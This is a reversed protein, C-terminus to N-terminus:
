RSDIDFCNACQLLIHNFYILNFWLSIYIIYMLDLALWFKHNFDNYYFFCFSFNEKTIRLYFRGWSPDELNKKLQGRRVLSPYVVSRYYKWRVPACICLQNNRMEAMWQPDIAVPIFNLSNHLPCTIVWALGFTLFGQNRYLINSLPCLTDLQRAQKYINEIILSSFFTHPWTCVTAM